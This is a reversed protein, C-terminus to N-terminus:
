SVRYDKPKFQVRNMTPDSDGDGVVASITDGAMSKADNVKDMGKKIIDGGGTMNRTAQIRYFARSKHESFDQNTLLRSNVRSCNYLYYLRWKCQDTFLYTFLFLIIAIM